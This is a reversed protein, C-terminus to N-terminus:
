RLLSPSKQFLLLLLASVPQDKSFLKTETSSTFSMGKTPTKTEAPRKMTEKKPKDKWKNRDKWPAGYLHYAAAWAYHHNAEKVKGQVFEFAIRPDTLAMRLALTCLDEEDKEPYFGPKMCNNFLEVWKIVLIVGKGNTNLVRHGAHVVLRTGSKPNEAWLTKKDYGKLEELKGCHLTYEETMHKIDTNWFKTDCVNPFEFTEALNKSIEKMSEESDNIDMGEMTALDTMVQNKSMEGDKKKMKKPTPKLCAKKPDKDPEKNAEAAAKAAAAARGQRGM